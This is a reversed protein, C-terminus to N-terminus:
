PIYKKYEQKVKASEQKMKIKPYESYIFFGWIVMEIGWLLFWFRSSLVPIMEYIFFWIVLGIAFNAFGFGILNSWINNYINYKKSRKVLYFFIGAILFFIIMGILAKEFVPTM